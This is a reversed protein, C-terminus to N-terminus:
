TTHARLARRCHQWDPCEKAVQAWFRPSHNMELLHCIEHIVVYDVLEPPLHVLRYNFNLNGNRSCSGWRTRQNRIAIKEWTVGYRAAFFAVRETVIKLVEDKREKYERAREEKTPVPPM